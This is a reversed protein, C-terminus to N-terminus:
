ILPIGVDALTAAEIINDLWTELEQLNTTAAIRAAVKRPVKKFKKRLLRLLIARRTALAEQQRGQIEGELRGEDKLMEAITQGMKVFEQRHSDTQVTRDVVERLSPQESGNRAHYVLALIYSLFEVWRTREAPAMQELHTLVEELTRRFTAADRHRERILWLVQGFFGGERTLTEPATERLNLFHPQFTPILRQFRQGERILDALAAVSEWRREGTYLVV